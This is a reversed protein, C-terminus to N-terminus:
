IHVTEFPLWDSTFGMALLLSVKLSSLKCTVVLMFAAMALSVDVLGVLM